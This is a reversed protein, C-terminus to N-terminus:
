GVCRSPRAWMPFARLRLLVGAYPRQGVVFKITEVPLANLSSPREIVFLRLNDVVFFCLGSTWVVIAAHTAARVTLAAGETATACSVDLMGGSGDLRRGM